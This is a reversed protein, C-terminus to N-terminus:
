STTAIDACAKSASYPDFGGLADNERYGWPWERNEYVKDTTISVVAKVSPTNRCADYVHLSGLVNTEYTELPKEYSERVLPQAALHFVIEPKFEQLCGELLSRNRIDGLVSTIPLDLLKWHSPQTPAELSYGCVQAGMNHLWLSLWSGKFGTHGTVLVRRNNYIGEFLHHM